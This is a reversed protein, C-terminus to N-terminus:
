RLTRGAPGAEDPPAGCQESAQRGSVSGARLTFRLVPGVRQSSVLVHGERRCLHAIDIASLPDTAEVELVEGAALRGLARQTMLAPLPCRLGKLDIRHMLGTGSM